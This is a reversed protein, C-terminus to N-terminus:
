RKYSSTIPKIDLDSVLLELRDMAESVPRTPQVGADGLIQRITNLTAPKVEGASMENELQQAAAKVMLQHLQNMDQIPAGNGADQVKKKPM